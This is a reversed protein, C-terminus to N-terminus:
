SGWNTFLGVALEVWLWLFLLVIIAAALLKYKGAKKMVLDLLLGTIFILAGMVMFDYLDWNMENSFQMAVLPVLLIGVTVAAIRLCSNMKLAKL